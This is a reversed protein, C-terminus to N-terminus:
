YKSGSSMGRGRLPGQWSGDPDPNGTEVDGNGTATLESEFGSGALAYPMAGLGTLLAVASFVLFLLHVQLKISNGNKEGQLRFVGKKGDHQRM